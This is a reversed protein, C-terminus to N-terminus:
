HYTISQIVRITYTRHSYIITETVQSIAFYNNTKGECDNYGEIRSFKWLNKGNNQSVM